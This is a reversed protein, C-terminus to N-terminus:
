GSRAEPIVPGEFSSVRVDAFSPLADRRTLRRGAESRGKLSM